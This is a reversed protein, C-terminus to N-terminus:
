WSMAAPPQYASYGRDENQWTSDTAVVVEDYSTSNASNVRYVANKIFRVQCTTNVPVLNVFLSSSRGLAYTRRCSFTAWGPRSTFGLLYM